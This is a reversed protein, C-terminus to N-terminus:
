GQEGYAVDQGRRRDRLDLRCQHHAIHYDGGGWKNIMSRNSEATLVYKKEQSVTLLAKQEIKDCVFALTAERDKTKDNAEVNVNITIPETSGKGESPTVTLWSEASEPIRICWDNNAAIEIQQAEAKNTFELKRAGFEDAGEITMTPQVYDTDDDNCAVFAFVSIAMFLNLLFTRKKM